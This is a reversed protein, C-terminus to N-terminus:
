FFSPFVCNINKDKCNLNSDLLKLFPRIDNPFKDEKNFYLGQMSKRDFLDTENRYLNNEFNDKIIKKDIDCSKLNDHM